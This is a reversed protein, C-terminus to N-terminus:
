YMYFPVNTIVRYSILRNSQKCKTFTPNKQWEEMIPYWIPKMMLTKYPLLKNKM